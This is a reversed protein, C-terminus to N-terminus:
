DGWICAEFAGGVRGIGGRGPEDKGASRARAAGRITGPLLGLCSAAGLGPRSVGGTVKGPPFVASRNGQFPLWGSSVSESANTLLPILLLGVIIFSVWVARGDKYGSSFFFLLLPAEISEDYKM